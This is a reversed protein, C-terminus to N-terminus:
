WLRAYPLSVVMARANTKTGFNLIRIPVVVIQCGSRVWIWGIVINRVGADLLRYPNTSMPLYSM